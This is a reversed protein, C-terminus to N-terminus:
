EGGGTKHRGDPALHQAYCRWAGIRGANGGPQQDREIAEQQQDAKGCKNPDPQVSLRTPIPSSGHQEADGIDARLVQRARVVVALWRTDKGWAPRLAAQNDPISLRKPRSAPEPPQNTRQEPYGEAEIDHYAYRVAGM